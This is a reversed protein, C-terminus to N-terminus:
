FRGVNVSLDFKNCKPIRGSNEEKYQDFIRGAGELPSPNIAIVYFNARSLCINDASKKIDMLMKNINEGFGIYIVERSKDALVFTGAATPARSISKENFPLYDQGYNEIRSM